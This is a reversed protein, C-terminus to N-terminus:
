ILITVNYQTYNLGKNVPVAYYRSLDDNSRGCQISYAKKIAQELTEDNFKIVILTMNFM